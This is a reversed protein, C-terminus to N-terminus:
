RRITDKEMAPYEVSIKIRAAAHSYKWMKYTDFHVARMGDDTATEHLNGNGSSSINWRSQCQFTRYPVWM